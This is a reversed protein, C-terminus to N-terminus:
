STTLPHATRKELDQSWNLAIDILNIYPLGGEGGGRKRPNIDDFHGIM